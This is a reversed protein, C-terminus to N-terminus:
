PTREAKRVGVVQSSEGIVLRMGGGEAPDFSVPRTAGSRGDWSSFSGGVEPLVHLVPDLGRQSTGLLREEAEDDWVYARDAHGREFLLRVLTVDRGERFATGLVEHGRKAGHEEVLAELRGEARPAFQALPAFRRYAEWLPEFDGSLYASVIADIRDSLREARATDVPRLSLLERFARRDIAEIALEDDSPTVRLEGGGEIEYTGALSELDTGGGRDWDPIDPLPAGMLLHGGVQELLGGELQFDAIVNTQIVAVVGAAPVLAMDAFLIGNGGNHTIVQAGGAEMVVWGYGYFSDGGGEDVHPSWYATMSEASLPKGALLAQGWRLMDWATSHIGGNARLVWFPGDDALPRELVNGWREGRRYGQALRGDGWAAQIYGTDYMGAPLFLRQRVYDEYTKGTVQELIAGLLSFGANSYEYRAGPAFALKQALARRVFEERGIPDWDGAGDLDVIGSSHTLLQHLTIARKDEPVKDFYQTIPHEVAVVGDEALSLIAAGTFQKTISGITSVTAPTWPIGRERDALGYGEALLPVGNQALVLSGAFGLKELRELYQQIEAIPDTAGTEAPLRASIAAFALLFAGALCHTLKDM